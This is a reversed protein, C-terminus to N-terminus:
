YQYHKLKNLFFDIKLCNEKLTSKNGDFSMTRKVEERLMDLHSVHENMSTRKLNVQDRLQQLETTMTEEAKSRQQIFFNM